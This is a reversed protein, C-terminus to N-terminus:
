ALIAKNVMKTFEEAGKSNLHTLDMFSERNGEFSESCDLVQIEGTKDQLEHLITYFRDRKSEFAARSKQTLGKLYFPPIILIPVVGAERLKRIFEVFINRNELETEEHECFWIHELDAMGDEDQYVARSYLEFRHFHYFQSIKEGFLRYNVVYDRAEPM